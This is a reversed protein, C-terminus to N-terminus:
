IHELWSVRRWLDGNVSVVEMKNVLYEWTAQPYLNRDTSLVTKNEFHVAKWNKDQMLKM